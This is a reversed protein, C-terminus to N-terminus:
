RMANPGNRYGRHEWQLAVAVQKFYEGGDIIRRPTARCNVTKELYKHAKWFAPLSKLPEQFESGFRAKNM